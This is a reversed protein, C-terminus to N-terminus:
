GHPLRRRLVVVRRGRRLVQLRHASVELDFKGRSIGLLACARQRSVALAGNTAELVDRITTSPTSAAPSQHPPEEASVDLMM